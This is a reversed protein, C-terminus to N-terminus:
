RARAPAGMQCRGTAIVDGPEMRVIGSLYAIQEDIKYTMEGARASQRLQGNVWLRLKLAYPDVGPGALLLYPGLPAFGDRAKMLFWDIRGGASGRPPIGARDSIDNIM